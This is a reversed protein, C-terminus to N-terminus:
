RSAAQQEQVVRAAEAYTIWVGSAPYVIWRLYGPLSLYNTEASYPRLGAVQPFGAIAPPAAGGPFLGSVRSATNKAFVIVVAVGTRDLGFAIGQDDYIMGPFNEVIGERFSRGVARLVDDVRYGVGLENSLKLLSNTTSAASVKGSQIYVVIGWRSFTYVTDVSTDRVDSPRGFRSLILRLGSGVTIGALSAGPVIRLSSPPLQPAIPAIGPPPVAPGPQPPSPQPAPPVPQPYPPTPQQAFAPAIALVIVVCAAITACRRM